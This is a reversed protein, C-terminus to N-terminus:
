EFMMLFITLIHNPRSILWILHLVVINESMKEGRPSVIFFAACHFFCLSLLWDEARAWMYLAFFTLTITRTILVESHPVALFASQSNKIKWAATKTHPLLAATRQKPCLRLQTWLWCLGDTKHVVSQGLKYCLNVGHAVVTFFCLIIINNVLKFNCNEKCLCSLINKKKLTSFM